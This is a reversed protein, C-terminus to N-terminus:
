GEERTRKRFHESPSAPPTHPGSFATARWTHCHAEQHALPATIEGTGSVTSLIEM